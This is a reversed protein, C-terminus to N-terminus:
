RVCTFSLIIRVRSYRLRPVVRLKPVPKFPHLSVQVPVPKVRDTIELEEVVGPAPVEAVPETSLDDRSRLEDSARLASSLEDVLGVFTTPMERGYSQLPNEMRAFTISAAVFEVERM